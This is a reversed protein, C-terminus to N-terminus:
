QGPQRIGRADFFATELEKYSSPRRSEAPIPRTAIAFPRDMANVIEDARSECLDVIELPLALTARVAPATMREPDAEISELELVARRPFTLRLHGVVLVLQSEDCALVFGNVKTANAANEVLPLREILSHLDEGERKVSM